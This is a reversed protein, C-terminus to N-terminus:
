SLVTKSTENLQAVRGVCYLELSRPPLAKALEAATNAESIAQLCKGQASAFVALGIGYGVCSRLEDSFPQDGRESCEVCADKISQVLTYLATNSAQNLVYMWDELSDGSRAPRVIAADTRSRLEGAESLSNLKEPLAAELARLPEGVDGHVLQFCIFAPPFM